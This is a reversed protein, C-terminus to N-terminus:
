SLINERLVEVKRDELLKEKLYNNLRRLLIESIVYDKSAIILNQKSLIDEKIIMGAELSSIKIKEVSFRGPSNKEQATKKFIEAIERPFSESASQIRRVAEDTGYKSSLREFIVATRIIIAGKLSDPWDPFKRRLNRIDGRINIRKIMAGVKKLRPIRSVLSSSILPYEEIMRKERASLSYGNFYKNLVEDPVAVCGTKSLLAALEYEWINQLKLERAVKSVHEKIKRAHRFAAPNTITLIEILVQISGQLTNELIGGIEKVAAKRWEIEKILDNNREILLETRERVAGALRGKEFSAERLLNYKRTMTLAMLKAEATDFPKKLLLLNDKGMTKAVLEESSFDSFATCLVIQTDPAAEWIKSMSELGNWGGNM